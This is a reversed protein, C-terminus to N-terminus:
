RAKIQELHYMHRTLESAACWIKQIPREEHSTYYITGENDIQMNWEIIQEMPYQHKKTKDKGNWQTM